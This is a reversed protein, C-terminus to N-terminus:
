PHKDMLYDWIFSNFPIDRTTEGLPLGINFSDAGPWTHGGNEVLLMSTQPTGGYSVYRVMTGDDNAANFLREEPEVAARHRGRWFAITERLSLYHPEDGAIDVIDDRNGHVYLVKVAVEAPMRQRVEVPLPAGVSVIGNLTGPLEAVLRQVFFGGRSIGVAFVKSTDIPYYKDLKEILTKIFAVDNTGSDYDQEFDM